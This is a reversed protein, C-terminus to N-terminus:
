SFTHEETNVALLCGSQVRYFVCLPVVNVVVTVVVREYANVCIIKQEACLFLFHRLKYVNNSAISHSLRSVDTEFILNRCIVFRYIVCIMNKRMHTRTILAIFQM